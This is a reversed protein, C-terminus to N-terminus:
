KRSITSYREVQTVGNSIRLARSMIEDPIPGFLVMNLSREGRPFCYSLLSDLYKSHEILGSLRRTRKRVDM